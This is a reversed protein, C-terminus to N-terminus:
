LSRRSTTNWLAVVLTAWYADVSAFSLAPRGGPDGRCKLSLPCLMYPRGQHDGQWSAVIERVGM